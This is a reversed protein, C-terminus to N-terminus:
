VSKSNLYALSAFPAFGTVFLRAVNSYWLVYDDDLKLATPALRTESM